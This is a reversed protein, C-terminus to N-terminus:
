QRWSRPGGEAEREEGGGEGQTVQEEAKGLMTMARMNVSRSLKDRMAELKTARRGAEKPDSATFDYSTGTQGFYQKEDVIWKHQKLM